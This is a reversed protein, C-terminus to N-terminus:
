DYITYDPNFGLKRILAVANAPQDVALVIRMNEGEVMSYLSLINIDKDALTRALKHLEYHHHPIELQFVTDERVAIGMKELQERFARDKPALFQIMTKSGVRTTVMTHFDLKKRILFRVLRAHIGFRSPFEVNYQTTPPRPM